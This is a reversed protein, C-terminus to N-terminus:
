FAGQHLWFCSARERPMQAVVVLHLRREQRLLLSYHDAAPADVVFRAAIARAHALYSKQALRVRSCTLVRRLHRRRPGAEASHRRTRDFIKSAALPWGGVIGADTSASAGCRWSYRLYLPANSPSSYHSYFDGLTLSSTGDELIKNGAFCFSVENPSLPVTHNKVWEINLMKIIDSKVDPLYVSMAWKKIASGLRPDVKSAPNSRRVQWAVNIKQEGPLGGGHEHHLLVSTTLQSSPTFSRSPASLKLRDRVAAARALHTEAISANVNVTSNQTTSPGLPNNSRPGAAGKAQATDDGPNDNSTVALCQESGCTQIEGPGCPVM